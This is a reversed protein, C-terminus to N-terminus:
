THTHTHTHTHTYHVYKTAFAQAATWLAQKLPVNTKDKAQSGVQAEFSAMDEVFAQLQRIRSASPPALPQLTFIHESSEPGDRERTGIFMVGLHSDDQAIIKSKMVSLAVRLCNALHTEGNDLTDFMAARADILFLIRDSTNKFSDDEEEEAEEEPERESWSM